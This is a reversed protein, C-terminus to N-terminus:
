PNPGDGVHLIGRSLPAQGNEQREGPPLRLSTRADPSATGSMRRPLSATGRLAHLGLEPLAKRTNGANSRVVSARGGARGELESKLVARPTPDCLPWARLAQGRANWSGPLVRLANAVGAQGGFGRLPAPPLLRWHRRRLPRAPLAQGPRLERLSRLALGEWPLVTTRQDPVEHVHHVNSLPNSGTVMAGSTRQIPFSVHLRRRLGGGANKAAIEVPHDQGGNASKDGAACKRAATRSGRTLWRGAGCGATGVLSKAFGM